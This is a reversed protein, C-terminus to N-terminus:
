IILCCDKDVITKKEINGLDIVNQSEIDVLIIEHLACEKVIIEIEDDSFYEKLHLTFFINKKQLESIVFLYNLFRKLPSDYDDKFKIDMVKFLDDTKITEKIDLSVDLELSLKKTIQLMKLRLQELDEQVTEYYTNLLLKNLSNLNRKSNLDFEILNSIFLSNCDIDLCENDKFLSIFDEEGAIFYLYSVIKSFLVLNEIQLVNLKTTTLEILSDSLYLKLYNTM